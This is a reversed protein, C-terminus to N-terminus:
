EESETQLRTYACNLFFRGRLMNNGKPKILLQQVDLMAGEEQLDFLFHVMADLESEWEKCEIGLEYLDGNRKEDGAQRKSINVGHKLALNDMISLWHIDMKKGVPFRPLRKSLENLEEEYSAREAVLAKDEEVQQLLSLQEARITKLEQFRPRALLGIGGFMIVSLALFGLVVERSSLRM